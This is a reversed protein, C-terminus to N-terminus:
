ANLTNQQEDIVSENQRHREIQHMSCMEIQKEWTGLRDRMTNLIEEGTMLKENESKLEGELLAEEM